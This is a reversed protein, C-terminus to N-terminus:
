KCYMGIYESAGQHGLDRAKKWDACAGEQDGKYFRALGKNYWTEPLDPNLDLAQGFDQIAADLNRMEFYTLGRAHYYEPKSPDKKILPNFEALADDFKNMEYYIQGAEYAAEESEPFFAKYMQIDKLAQNYDENRKYAEARKLYLDFLEPKLKLAKTFDDIAKRDKGLDTYLVGREAYFIANRKNLSIATSYDDLASRKNGLANFARARAVYLGYSKPYHLLSKNVFDVAEVNDGSSVLYNADATTKESKNYWDNQWLSQWDKYKDLGSFADEMKIVSEPVKYPSELHNRLYYITNELNGQKAYCKALEYSAIAPKAKEAELFEKIANDYQGQLYYIRGLNLLCQTKLNENQQGETFHQIASPYDKQNMDAIGLLYADPQSLAPLQSALFLLIGSLIAKGKM